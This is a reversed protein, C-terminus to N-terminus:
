GLIGTHIAGPKANGVEFFGGELSSPQAAAELVAVQADLARGAALHHRMDDARARAAEVLRRADAVALDPM